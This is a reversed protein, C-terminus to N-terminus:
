RSTDPPPQSVAGQKVASEFPPQPPTVRDKRYRDMADGAKKGDTIWDTAYTPNPNIIQVSMNYNVANGFDNSLPLRSDPGNCAALVILTFLALSRNM